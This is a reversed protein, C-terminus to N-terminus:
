TKRVEHLPDRTVHHQHRNASFTLTFSCLVLYLTTTSNVHHPMCMRAVSAALLM